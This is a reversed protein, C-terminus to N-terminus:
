PVRNRTQNGSPNDIWEVLGGVSAIRPCDVDAYLDALDLLVGERLGANRAGVVDVHYLDGVHVTTAADAGSQELAHRFLGPDPKEVGWDHSDLVHDFWKTMDLRDFLHRLRGNANSVVVLRLGRQRLAALTPVVDAEVHEWLNDVRHYERLEALAADTGANQPVGAHHLVLNFYLWGRARDDTSGITSANDIDRTAKQEAAALAAATVSAGHRVLADAVRAWSPHCLVGGADLFVTEIRPSADISM